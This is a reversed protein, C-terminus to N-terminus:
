PTLKTNALFDAHMAAHDPTYEAGIGYTMIQMVVKPELFISNAYVVDLGNFKIKYIVTDGSLEGLTAPLVDIVEAPAGTVAQANQLVVDRMFEATLGDDSGLDEILYQAYHRADIRYAANIEPSSPPSTAWGLAGGCFQVRPTITACDSGAAGTATEYAWTGNDYLLAVKGEVISRGVVSQALVPAALALGAVIALTFPRIM